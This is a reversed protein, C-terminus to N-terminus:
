YSIPGIYFYEFFSFSENTKLVTGRITIDVRKKIRKANDAMVIDEQKVRVGVKINSLRKEHRELSNYLSEEFHRKLKSSSKLNDFEIQWISCGFTDDYKYEGFSSTNILHIHHAISEKLGCREHGKATMLNKASLPITYYQQDM